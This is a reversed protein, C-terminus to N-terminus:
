FDRGSLQKTELKLHSVNKFETLNTTDITPLKDLPRILIKDLTQSGFKIKNLKELIEDNTLEDSMSVRHSLLLLCFLCYASKNSPNALFRVAGKISSPSFVGTKGSTVGLFTLFDYLFEVRKSSENNAGLSGKDLLSSFLYQLNHITLSEALL